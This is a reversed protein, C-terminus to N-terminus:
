EGILTNIENIVTDIDGIIEDIETKTYVESKTYYDSLDVSVNDLATDIESKTYYNSLDINNLANDVESKTYYDNLNAPIFKPDITVIKSNPKLAGTYMMPAAFDRNVYCGLFYVGISPLEVTVGIADTLDISAPLSTVNIVYPIDAGLYWCNNGLVYDNSTIEGPDEDSITIYGGIVNNVSKIPTNSMKVFYYGALGDGEDEPLEMELMTVMKKNTAIGNWTIDDFPKEEYGLAINSPLYKLDIQKLEGGIIFEITRGEPVGANLQRQYYIGEGGEPIELSMPYDSYTFNLIGSKNVFIFNFNNDSTVVYVFDDTELQIKSEDLIYEQGNIILKTNNFIEDRTPVLDSVKYGSINLMTNDIQPPNPNKAQSYYSRIRTDYGLAMNEPLYKLDLTKLEGDNVIIEIITGEYVGAGLSNIFYTGTEPININATYGSFEFTTEGTSYAILYMDNTSDVFQISIFKDAEFSIDSIKLKKEVDYSIFTVNSIEDKTPTLDSVKYASMNFTTIDFSVPNPNEVQSYYSRAKITRTDYFPRNKIYDVATADNQEYDPQVSQSNGSGGTSIFPLENVNTEGDGIKLRIDANEADKDYFIWEGKLPIFNVAKEWNEQTDIKHQIRANLKRDM